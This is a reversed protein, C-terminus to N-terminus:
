LFIKFFGNFFLVIHTRYTKGFLKYQVYSNYVNSPLKASNIVIKIYMRNGLLENPDQIPTDMNRMEEAINVEGKYDTEYLHVKLLGIVKYGSKDYLMIEMPM